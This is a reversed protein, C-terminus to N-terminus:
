IIIASGIPYYEVRDGVGYLEILMPIVWPPVSEEDDIWKRMEKLTIKWDERIRNQTLGSYKLFDPFTSVVTLAEATKASSSCLKDVSVGLAAALSSVTHFRLNAIQTEGNELKQVQRVFIGAADALQQQTLGAARRLSKLNNRRAFHEAAGAAHEEAWTQAAEKNLEVMNGASDCIFYIGARTVYLAESQNSGLKKATETNCVHGGIVKKM